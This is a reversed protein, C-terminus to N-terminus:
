ITDSVRTRKNAQPDTDDCADRKRKNNHLTADNFLADIHAHIHKPHYVHPRALPTYGANALAPPLIQEYDAAFLRDVNRATQVDDRLMTYGAYAGRLAGAIAANTDTDGGARVVADVATSFHAPHPYTRLARLAHYLACLVWGQESRKVIWAIEREVTDFVHVIARGAEIDDADSALTKAEQWAHHLRHAADDEEDYILTHLLCVYVRVALVCVPHPNTLACDVRAAADCQARTGCLALPAARMLCGNSQTWAARDTGVGFQKEYRKEYGKRTSVGKFLARTNRGMWVTNPANAWWVYARLAEDARYLGTDATREDTHRVLTELLALTMETDDTVQGVACAHKGHGYARHVRTRYKLVGSYSDLPAGGAHPREHPAGLADGLAVGVLAGLARDRAAM